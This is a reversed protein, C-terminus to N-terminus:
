ELSEFKNRERYGNRIEYRTVAIVFTRNVLYTRFSGQLRFEHSTRVNHALFESRYGLQLQLRQRIKRGQSASSNASRSAGEPYAGPSIQKFCTQSQYQNADALLRHLM